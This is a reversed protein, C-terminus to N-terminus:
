SIGGKSPFNDIEYPLVCSNPSFYQVSKNLLSHITACFIDDNPYPKIASVPPIGRFIDLRPDTHFNYSIILKVASKLWIYARPDNGCSIGLSLGINLDRLHGGALRWGFIVPRKALFIGAEKSLICDAYYDDEFPIWTM